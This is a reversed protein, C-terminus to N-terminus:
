RGPREEMRLTRPDFTLVVTTTPGRRNKALRVKVYPTDGRPEVLGGFALVFDANEEFCGSDRAAELPVPDAARKGARNAQVICFVAVDLERALQKLGIATDSAREYASQSRGGRILGAHDVLLAALPVSGLRAKLDTAARRLRELTINGEDVTYVHQYRHGFGDLDLTNNTLGSALETESLGLDIRLWRRVRQAFPMECTAVLFAAAAPRDRLERLHNDQYMTKLSATRGLEIALEGPEVGGTAQDLLASGFRLRTRCTTTADQCTRAIGEFISLPGSSPTEGNIAQVVELPPRSLPTFVEALALLDAETVVAPPASSM